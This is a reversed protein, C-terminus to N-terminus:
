RPVHFSTIGISKTSKGTKKLCMIIHNYTYVHTSASGLNHADVLSADFIRQKDLCVVRYCREESCEAFIKVVVRDRERVDLLHHHRAHAAGVHLLGEVSQRRRAGVLEHGVAEPRLVYGVEVPQNDDAHPRAGREHLHFPLADPVYATDAQAPSREDTKRAEQELRVVDQPYRLQRALAVQAIHVELDLVDALGREGSQREVRGGREEALHVVIRPRFIHRAAQYM